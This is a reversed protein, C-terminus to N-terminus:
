AARPRKDCFVGHTTTTFRPHLSVTLSAKQSPPTGELESVREADQRYAEKLDEATEELKEKETDLWESIYAKNM